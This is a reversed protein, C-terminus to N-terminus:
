YCEFKAKNKTFHTIADDIHTCEQLENIVFDVNFSDRDNQRRLLDENKAYATSLKCKLDKIENRQEITIQVLDLVTNLMKASM